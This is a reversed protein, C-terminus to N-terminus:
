KHCNTRIDRNTKQIIVAVLKKGANTIQVLYDATNYINASNQRTNGVIGTPSMYQYQYRIGTPGPYGIAVSLPYTARGTQEDIKLFEVISLRPHGNDQGDCRFVVKPGVPKIEAAQSWSAAALNILILIVLKM